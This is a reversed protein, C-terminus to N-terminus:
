KGIRYSHTGNILRNRSEWWVCEYDGDYEKTYSPITVTCSFLNTSDKSCTKRYPVDWFDGGTLPLYTGSKSERYFEIVPNCSECLSRVACSTVLEKGEDHDSNIITRPLVVAELVLLVWLFRPLSLLLFWVRCGYYLNLVYVLPKRLWGSYLTSRVHASVRRQVFVSTCLTKM